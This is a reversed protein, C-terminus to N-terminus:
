TILNNKFQSSLDLKARWRRCLPCRPYTVRASSERLRLFSASNGCM